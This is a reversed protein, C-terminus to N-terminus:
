PIAEAQYKSCHPMLSPPPPPPPTSHKGGRVNGGGRRCDEIAVEADSEDDSCPLASSVLCGRRTAVGWTPVADAAPYSRTYALM